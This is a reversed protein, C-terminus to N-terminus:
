GVGGPRSGLSVSTTSACDLEGGLLGCLEEVDAPGAEDTQEGGAVV